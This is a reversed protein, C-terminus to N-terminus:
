AASQVVLLDLYGPTRASRGLLDRGTLVDGTNLLVSGANSVLAGGFSVIVDEANLPLRDAIASDQPLRHIAIETDVIRRRLTDGQFDHFAIYEYAGLDRSHFNEGEYGRRERGFNDRLRVLDHKEPPTEVEMVFAGEPSVARTSHFVCPEIVLADLEHLEYRSDLTSSIAEGVLVVLATKKKIHCHLSTGANPALYLIWVAVHLNQYALYEYGWPKQVVISRYDTELRPPAAITKFESLAERDLERPFIRQFQAM